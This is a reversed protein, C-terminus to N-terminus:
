NRQKNDEILASLITCYFLLATVPHEVKISWDVITTRGIFLAVPIALVTVIMSIAIKTM